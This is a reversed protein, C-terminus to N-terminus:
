TPWYLISIDPCEQVVSRGIPRPQLRNVADILKDHDDTFDVVGLGSTTFIGARDTANLEKSLHRLAAQRAFALDGFAAHIDDFLYAIFRQPVTAKRRKAPPRRARM